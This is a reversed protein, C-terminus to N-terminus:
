KLKDIIENKIIYVKSLRKPIDNEDILIEKKFYKNRVLNKLYDSIYINNLNDIIKNNQNELEIDNNYNGMLILNNVSKFNLFPSGQPRIQINHYYLYFNIHHIEKQSHGKFSNLFEQNIIVFAKNINEKEKIKNIDEIIYNEIDNLKCYNLNTKEQKKKIYSIITNKDENNKQLYKDNISDYFSYKKWNEVWYGDVLFGEYKEKPANKTNIKTTIEKELNFYNM